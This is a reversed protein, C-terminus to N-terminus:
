SPDHDGDARLRRMDEQDRKWGIYVPTVYGVIYALSILVVLVLLTWWSDSM